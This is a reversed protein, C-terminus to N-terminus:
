PNHSRIFSGPGAYFWLRPTAAIDDGSSEEQETLELNRFITHM